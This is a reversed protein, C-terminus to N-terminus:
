PAARNTAKPIVPNGDGDRRSGANLWLLWPELLDRYLERPDRQLENEPCPTRENDYGHIQAIEDGSMEITILPVSPASKDRLFLIVVSGNVYREAYGGVCHLLKRGEDVVEAASVPPRIMWREDSFAYRKTLSEYRVREKERAAEREKEEEVARAAAIAATREDHRRQLGRPLLYVDNRLDLGLEEAAHIYDCWEEMIVTHSYPTARQERDLYNELRAWTLSYRSMYEACRKLWIVGYRQYIRHLTRFDLALGAEKLRRYIPLCEIEKCDALFERIERKDLRLAKRIDPENWDMIEANKRRAWMLDDLPRKLGAKVMMEVQRPYFSYATLYSIFDRSEEMQNWHTFYACYRYATDDLAEPNIIVYPEHCYWNITGSKFPEQANKKKGLTGREYTIVPKGSEGLQYDAQMVEGSQIRYRQCANYRPAATLDQETEYGKWLYLADAYLIGDRSHLLLARRCAYLTKRSKAKSLSIMTVDAGCMPCRGPKKHSLSELFEREGPTEIRRPEALEMSQGCGSCAVRWLVGGDRKERRWFLYRPFLGNLRAMDEKTLTPWADLIRKEDETIAM